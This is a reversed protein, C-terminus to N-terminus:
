RQSTTDPRPPSESVSLPATLDLTALRETPDDPQASLTFGLKSCFRLMSSNEALVVGELKRYGRARAAVMLRTMLERGLGSHQMWDGVVIAFEAVGEDWTPLIRAVAALREGLPDSAVREIAVLALERDYDIQTFREIMSDPLAKIPMMFRRYLTEPSLSGVFIRQLPADEPRIPRILVPERNRLPVTAELERPYPHIALHRYEGGWDPRRPASAEILNIIPQALTIGGPGLKVPNIDIREIQPCACVLASFRLLLQELAQLGVAPVSGFAQLRRSLRTRRVLADALNANLPPLEHAIDDIQESAPGGAGFGIVAGFVPDTLLSLCADRVVGPAPGGIDASHGPTIPAPLGFAAFLAAAEQPDLQRRGQSLATDLLQRAAAVDPAHDHGIAQPVQRLTQQNRAFQVMLSLGDVANEPTLFQPVGAEDLRRQGALASGGGAIVAAVPKSQASCAALIADAAENSPTGAHPMFTVLVADVGEDALTTQLASEIRAPDADSFLNVPNSAVSEGPMLASLAACTAPALTALDLQRRALADAAIVGPGGGNAVIAVRAGAPRKHLGLLRAAALLQLTTDARVAGARAIAVDIVRDAAAHGAAGTRGAKMIVVPKVRALARVSSLFGRADQLDELYLLVSDTQADFLYWDLLEGFSLDLSRGVSLVSSFGLGAGASWDILGTAMAGSQSLLAMRGAKVREPAFGLALGSAPRMLATCNPGVLRVGLSQALSLLSTEAQRGVPSASDFGHHFMALFRTGRAACERIIGALADPEAAALALDPAFDLQGANRVVVAGQVPEDGPDIIGVRGKFGSGALESVLLRGVSGPAQSAGYLVISQPDFLASLKPRGM